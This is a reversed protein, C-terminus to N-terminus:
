KYQKTVFRSTEAVTERLAHPELVLAHKGWSLIWSEIENLSGLTLTLELRGHKLEKIKQSHHWTRERILQAAFSDFQIRVEAIAIVREWRSVTPM